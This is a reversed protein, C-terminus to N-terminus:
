WVPTHGDALLNWRVGYVHVRKTSEGLGDVFGGGAHSWALVGGRLNHADIDRKRLKEAYIGSREGITCYVVIVADAYAKTERKINGEFESATIAGPIMSVDREDQDRNDVVIIKEAVMREILEDASIDPVDPFKLKSKLYMATIKKLNSGSDNQSGATEPCGALAFAILLVCLCRLGLTLTRLRASKDFVYSRHKRM